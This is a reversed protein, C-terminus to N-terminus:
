LHPLRPHHGGSLPQSRRRTAPESSLTTRGATGGILFGRYPQRRSGALDGIRQFGFCSYFIYFPLMPQAPSSTPVPLM